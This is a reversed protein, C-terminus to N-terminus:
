RKVHSSNLRTSKRDLARLADPAYMSNADSFVLIEGKALSSATNLAPIKGRRPLALLQVGREAYRKVIEDTGDTSGDSAVIIELRDPPYDLSLTNKLKEEIVGAENYAAIILSVSPTIDDQKYPRPLLLGRLILILPFGIFVYILVGASLWFLLTVVNM